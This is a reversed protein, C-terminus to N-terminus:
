RGGKKATGSRPFAALFPIEDTALRRSADVDTGKSSIPRRSFLAFEHAIEPRRM